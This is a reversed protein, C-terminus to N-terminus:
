GVVVVLKGVAQNGDLYRHAEIIEDYAFIKHVHSPYRGAAVGDVIAPLQGFDFPGMYTTLKVTSPIWDMPGEDGFTWEDALSGTNCVIGGRATAQLTDKLAATGVLDQVRDVGDPVIKRVRDAIEGGDIIVHDAGAERLAGMKAKARTTALVTLGLEKALTITAMGVSSTAGRVLLTQGTEVELSEHLSGWATLYMIPLAALTPWDLDTELAAVYETPVAVFEAYAGDIARGMGGTAAAVKQGPPFEGLPAAYIQGVCELGLVKPFLVGPSQGERTFMESRNLGFARIRIVVWGPECEPVPYEMFTLAEPGGPKEVAIARM